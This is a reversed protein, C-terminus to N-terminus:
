RYYRHYAQYVSSDSPLVDNVVVGGITAGVDRLDNLCRRVTAVSSRALTVLLVIDVAPALSLAAGFGEVPTCDILVYEARQALNELLRHMGDTVALDPGLEPTTGVPLISLEPLETELLAQDLDVDGRCVDTLGPTEDSISLLGNLGGGYFDADVVISRRQVLALMIGLNLAITTKGEQEGPSTVLATTFPQREHLAMLSTRLVRFAELYASPGPSPGLITESEILM